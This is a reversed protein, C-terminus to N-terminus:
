LGEQPRNNLQRHAPPDVGTPFIKIWFIIQLTNKHKKPSFIGSLKWFLAPPWGRNPFVWFEDLNTPRAKAFTYDIFSIHKYSRDIKYRRGNSMIIHKVFHVFGTNGHWNDIPTRQSQTRYMECLSLLFWLRGWIIWSIENLLKMNKVHKWQTPKFTSTVATDDHCQWTNKTPTVATDNHKQTQLKCNRM